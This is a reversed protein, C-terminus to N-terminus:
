SLIQRHYSTIFPSVLIALAVSYSYECRRVSLVSSFAILSPGLISTKYYGYQCNYYVTPLAQQRITNDARTTVPSQEFYGYCLCTSAESYTTAANRIASLNNTSRQQFAKQTKVRPISHYANQTHIKRHYHVYQQQLIGFANEWDFSETEFHILALEGSM